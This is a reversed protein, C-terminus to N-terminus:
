VNATDGNIRVLFEVWLDEDEDNDIWKITIWDKKPSVHIIIGVTDPHYQAYALDGIQFM